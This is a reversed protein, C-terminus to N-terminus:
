VEGEVLFDVFYSWPTFNNGVTISRVWVRYNGAALRPSATFSQETLDDTRIVKSVGTTLNDVQLQFRISDESAMWRIVVPDSPSFVSPVDLIARGDTHVDSGFQWPGTKGNTSVARVAWKWQGVTLPQAPIFHPESVQRVLRNDNGNMLIVDYTVSSESAATWTLEPTRNLTIKPASLNTPLQQSNNDDARFHGRWGWRGPGNALNARIWVLYEGQDMVPVQLSTDTVADFRVVGSSRAQRIYVDYSVAGAVPYWNLKPVSSEVDGTAPIIITRNGVYLRQSQSWFTGNGSPTTARVFWQYVGEPLPDDLVLSTNQLDKLWIPAQGQFSELYFEYGGVHPVASWEFLPRGDSSLREPSVPEPITHLEQAVSWQSRRGEYNIAQLWFHIKGAQRLNPLTVSTGTYTQDVLVEGSTTNRGFLRYESAGAVPAWSVNLANVQHDVEITNLAPVRNVTFTRNSWTSLTGDALIARVWVRYDAMGLMKATILLLQDTTATSLVQPAQGLQVLQVEYEVAGDVETWSTAWSDFDVLGASVVQLVNSDSVSVDVAWDIVDTWLSDSQSDVVSLTLQADEEGDKIGDTVALATIKQAINWNDPTFLLENETTRLSSFDSTGLSIRVPTQPRHSLQVTLSDNQQGEAITLATDSIVLEAIDADLVQIDFTRVLADSFDPDSEDARVSLNLVVTLDGTVEGDPTATITYPQIQNWNDPTFVIESPQVSLNEPLSATLDVIVNTTPPQTLSLGEVVLSRGEEITQKNAPHNVLLGTTLKGVPVNYRLQDVTVTVQNTTATTHAAADIGKPRIFYEGPAPQDFSYRGREWLEDVEGDANLDIWSSTSTAIVQGDSNVLEVEVGDARLEQAGIIGDSNDDLWVNGYIQQENDNIAISVQASEANHFQTDSQTTDISFTIESHQFEPQTLEDDVAELSVTQRVNWNNPTFLLTDASTNIRDPDAVGVTVVVNSSPAMNLWVEVEVEVADGGEGVQFGAPQRQQQVLIGSAGRTFDAHSFTRGREVRYALSSAQGDVANLRRFLFDTQHILLDAGDPSIEFQQPLGPLKDYTVTGVHQGTDVDYLNIWDDETAGLYLLDETPHFDAGGAMDEFNHIARFQDDFMVTDGFPEAAVLKTGDASIAVAQMGLPGSALVTDTAVDYLAAREQGGDMVTLLLRRHATDSDVVRVLQLDEMVQTATPDLINMNVSLTVLSGDPKQLTALVQSQNIFTLQQVRYSSGILPFTHTETTGDEIWHRYITFEDQVFEGEGVFLLLGDDSIALGNAVTGIDLSFDFDNYARTDGRQVGNEGDTRYLIPLIPHFVADDNRDANLNQPRLPEYIVPHTQAAASMGRQSVMYNGADIGDFRYWGAEKQPDIEGDENLDYSTTVASRVLNGNFDHLDIEIGNLYSDAPPTAYSFEEAFWVRGRIASENDLNKQLIDIPPSDAVSEDSADVDFALRVNTYTQLDVLDDDIGTITITQPQNWNDHTFILQDRDVNIETLDAVTVDVVVNSAPQRILSAYYTVSTGDESVDNSESPSRLSLRNPARGFADAVVTSNQALQVLRTRARADEDYLVSTYLLSHSGVFVPSEDLLMAEGGFVFYGSAIRLDIQEGTLLDTRLIAPKALNHSLIVDDVIGFRAGESEDLRRVIKFESDLLRPDSGSVLLLSGDDNWAQPYSTQSSIGDPVDSWSSTEAIYIRNASEGVWHVLLRNQNPSVLLHQWPLVAIEGSFQLTATDFEVLRVDGSGLGKTLLFITGDNMWAIQQISQEDTVIDTRFQREASTDLDIVSLVIEQSDVDVWAAALQQDDPSIEIAQYEGEVPLTRLRANATLLHEHIQHDIGLVYVTGTSESPEISHISGYEDNTFNRAAYRSDAVSDAVTTQGVASVGAQRVQYQGADLGGFKYWGTETEPGIQGSQDIDISMSEMSALVDGSINLLEITQGNAFEEGDDKTGNENLDDWVQGQVTASLLCRRELVDITHRAIASRRRREGRRINQLLSRLMQNM